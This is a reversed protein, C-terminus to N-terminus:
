KKIKKLEIDVFDIETLNSILNALEIDYQPYFMVCLALPEWPM